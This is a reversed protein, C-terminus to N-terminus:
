AIRGVVSMLSVVGILGASTSPDAPAVAALACDKAIEEIGSGISPVADVNLIEVIEVDIEPAPRQPLDELVVRRAPRADDAEDAGRAIKVAVGEAAHALVQAPLAVVDPDEVQAALSAAGRRLSLTKAMWVGTAM